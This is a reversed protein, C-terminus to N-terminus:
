RTNISVENICHIYRERRCKCDASRATSMLSDPISTPAIHTPGGRNVCAVHVVRSRHRNGTRCNGNSWHANPERKAGAHPSSVQDIMTGLSRTELEDNSQDAVVAILHNWSRLLSPEISRSRLNTCGIVESNVVLSKTLRQRCPSLLAHSASTSRYTRSTRTVAFRCPSVSTSTSSTACSTKRESACARCMISSGSLKGEQSM